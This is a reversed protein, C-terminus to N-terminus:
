ERAPGPRGQIRGGNEGPSFAKEGPFQYRWHFDIWHPEDRDLDASTERLFEFVPGARQMAIASGFRVTAFHFGFGSLVVVLAAAIVVPVRAGGSRWLILWAAPWALIALRTFDWAALVGSLSVHFGVVVGVWVPLLWLPREAARLGLAFAALCLFLFAYTVEFLPVDKSWVSPDANRVLERFPWELGTQWFVRHAHAIGGFGPVRAHLYLNLLGFVVLPISLVAVRQLTWERRTVLFIWGIPLGLLLAPYRTVVCASLLAVGALSAGRLCALLAAMACLMALSEPSPSVAVDIWRPNAVAFLAAGWLAPAGVQRCLLYFVVTCLSAPVWSAVLLAMGWDLWSDPTLVRLIFALAPYGPAHGMYDRGEAAYPLPFSRAIELYLHGDYFVALGPLSIGARIAVTAAIVVYLVLSGFFLAAIPLADDRGIAPATPASV